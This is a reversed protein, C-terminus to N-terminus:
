GPGGGAPPAGAARGLCERVARTFGEETGEPDYGLDRRAPELDYARERVLVQLLHRSLRPRGGTAAAWGEALLAAVQGLPRVASLPLTLCRAGAERCLIESLRARAVPERDCVAYAAGPAGRQRALLLADVVNRRSALHVRTDPRIRAGLGLRAVRRVLRALSPRDADYIPGPRLVVVPLRGRFGALAAEARIKSRGYETSGGGPEASVSSCHVLRGVGARLAAEALRVSGEVNVADLDAASAHHDVLAALHFVLSVGEVARALAAPDRLDGPVGSCGAPVVGGRHLVRVPEGAALLRAVLGRGLLGTGGTVLIM